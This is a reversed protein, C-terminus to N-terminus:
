GMEIHKHKCLLLGNDNNDGFALCATKQFWPCDPCYKFEIKKNHSLCYDKAAECCDKGRNSTFAPCVSRIEPDCDMFEWCNKANNKNMNNTYKAKNNIIYIYINLLAYM